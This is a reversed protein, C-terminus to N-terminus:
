YRYHRVADEVDSPVMGAELRYFVTGDRGRGGHLVFRPSFYTRLVVKRYLTVGYLDNM